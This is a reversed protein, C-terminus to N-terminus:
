VIAIVSTMYVVKVKRINVMFVVYRFNYADTIKKFADMDKALHPLAIHVSIRMATGLNTPCSTIYGLHESYAFSVKTEISKIKRFRSRTFVEKIDGGKQM